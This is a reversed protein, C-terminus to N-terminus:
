TDKGFYRAGRALLTICIIDSLLFVDDLFWLTYPDQNTMLTPILAPLLIIFSWFHARFVVTSLLNLTYRWNHKQTEKRYQRIRGIVWIAIATEALMALLDARNIQQPDTLVLYFTLYVAVLYLIFLAGYIVLHHKKRQLNKSEFTKKCSLLTFPAYESNTQETQASASPSATSWPDTNM